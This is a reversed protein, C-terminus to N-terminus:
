LVNQPPRVAVPHSTAVYILDILISENAHLLDMVSHVPGIYLSM